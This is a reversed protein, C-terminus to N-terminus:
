SFRWGQDQSGAEKLYPTAVEKLEEPDVEREIQEVIENFRANVESDPIEIIELTEQTDM